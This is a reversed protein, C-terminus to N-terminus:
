KLRKRILYNYYRLKIKKLIHKKKLRSLINENKKLVLKYYNCVNIDNFDLKGFLYNIRNNKGKKYCSILYYKGKESVIIEKELYFGLKSIFKRTEIFDCNPSIVIKNINSFQNIDKLIENITLGGMGSIIITDIQKDLCEIGNGLRTEIKDSLNYKEINEKAKKLPMENIDSSVMKKINKNLVLYIGLLGHDCGIDIVKDKECIFDSIKLLRNNIKINM